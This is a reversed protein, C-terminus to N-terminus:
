RRRTNDACHRRNKWDPKQSDAFCSPTQLQSEKGSLRVPGLHLFRSRLEAVGDTITGSRRIGNLPNPPGTIIAEQPRKCDATPRATDDLDIGLEGSGYRLHPVLAHRSKNIKPRGM